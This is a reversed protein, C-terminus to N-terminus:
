RAAANSDVGAQERVFPDLAQIVAELARGELDVLERDLTVLEPVDVKRLVIRVAWGGSGVTTAYYVGADTLPFSARGDAGVELVERQGRDWADALAGDLLDLYCSAVADFEARVLWLADAVAQLGEPGVSLQPSGLRARLEDMDPAASWVWRGKLWAARYEESFGLHAAIESEAVSWPAHAGSEVTRAPEKSDRDMSALSLAAAALLAAPLLVIPKM